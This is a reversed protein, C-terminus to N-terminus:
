GAKRWRPMITSNVTCGGHILRMKVMFGGCEFWSFMNFLGFSIGATM